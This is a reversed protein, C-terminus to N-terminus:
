LNLRDIQYHFLMVLVLLSPLPFIFRHNLFPRLFMILALLLAMTHARIYTILELVYNSFSLSVVLLHLEHTQDESKQWECEDNDDM